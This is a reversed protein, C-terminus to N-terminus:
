RMEACMVHVSCRVTVDAERIAGHIFFVRMELLFLGWLRVDVIFFM